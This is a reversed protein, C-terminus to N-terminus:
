CYVTQAPDIAVTSNGGTAARLTSEAEEALEWYLLELIKKTYDCNIKSCYNRLKQTCNPSDLVTLRMVPCGGGCLYRWQCDRCETRHDVYLFSQMQDLLNRDIWEEELVNGLYFREIGMLYICPYVNGEVDVVPTNGHPAGCGTTVRSGPKVKNAYVSFPFLRESDWVRSRYVEELGQILVSADPVLGEDLLEEDSNVPNLPVIACGRAGLAKHHHAIEMMRQENLTTITARLSVDLGAQVLREINSTIVAHSPKGNKYPRCQDHVKQEGDVDCLMSIKYEKAWQIFDAPVVTLNSTIHYKIRKDGHVPKLGNECHLIVKKVLPWNLMPEGGFFVIELFGGKELRELCREVSRFAVQESMKLKQTTKYTKRGNLCYVCGLNCSQSLLLYLSIGSTKTSIEFPDPHDKVPPADEEVLIRHRVLTDILESDRPFAKQLEKRSVTRATEKILRKVYDRGRKIYLPQVAWPNVLLLEDLGRELMILNGNVNLHQKQKTEM